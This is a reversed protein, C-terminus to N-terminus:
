PSLSGTITMPPRAPLKRPSYWAPPMMMTSPSVSLLRGITLLKGQVPICAPLQKEAGVAPVDQKGTLHHGAGGALLVQLLDLRVQM